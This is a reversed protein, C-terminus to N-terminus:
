AEVTLHTITPMRCLYVLLPEQNDMEGRITAIRTQSQILHQDPADRLNRPHRPRTGLSPYGLTQYRDIPRRGVACRHVNPFSGGDFHFQGQPRAQALAGGRFWEREVDKVFVIRQNSDVFRGPHDNM